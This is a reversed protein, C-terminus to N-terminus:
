GNSYVACFSQFVEKGANLSTLLLRMSLEYLALWAVWAYEIGFVMAIIGFAGRQIGFCYLM